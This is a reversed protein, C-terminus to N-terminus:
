WDSDPMKGAGFLSILLMVALIIPGGKKVIKGYLEINDISNNYHFIDDVAARLYSLWYRKEIKSLVDKHTSIKRKLMYRSVTADCWEGVREHLWHFIKIYVFLRNDRILSERGGFEESYYYYCEHVLSMKVVRSFVEFHFALDDFCRIHEPFCISNGILFEKRYIRRAITPDDLLYIKSDGVLGDNQGTVHISPFQKLKKIDDCNEIYGCEAVDAGNMIASRYLESYMRRDVWDNANIFAIYEGQAETLGINKASAYSGNKKHVVKVKIPYLLAWEDLRKVTDDQSENDIVIIEISDLTQEVLSNLCRDILRAVNFAIIVVSIEYQCKNERLVLPISSGLVRWYFRKTYIKSVRYVVMPDIDSPDFEGCIHNVTYKDFLELILPWCFNKMDIRIMGIVDSDIYDGIDSLDKCFFVREAWDVEGYDQLVATFEKIKAGDNEVVIIQTHEYDYLLRMIELGSRMGIILVTNNIHDSWIKQGYYNNRCRIIDEEVYEGLLGFSLKSSYKVIDSSRLM